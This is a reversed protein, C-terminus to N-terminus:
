SQRPTETSPLFQRWNARFRRMDRRARLHAIWRSSTWSTADLDLFWIREPTVLINQAKTDGHRFGAKGLLRLWEEMVPALRKAWAPDRKMLHSFKEGDVRPFLLVGSGDSYSARAIPGPTPFGLHNLTLGMVWSRRGSDLGTGRKIRAHLSTDHYHKIIWGGCEHVSIRSGKKILPWACPDRLIRQIENERDAFARDLLLSENAGKVERIASCSRLWKRNAKRIRRKLAKDKVRHLRLKQLGSLKFFVQIRTRLLDALGLPAQACLLGLNRIVIRNRRWRGSPLRAIAGSDVVQIGDGSYVFNGLHLDKQYFGAQYIREIQLLLDDIVADGGSCIVDGVESADELWEACLVTVGEGEHIGLPEPLAVDAGRLAEMNRRELRALQEHDPGFFVKAFVQRGLFRARAALRKGPLLRLCQELQIEGDELELRVARWDALTAARLWEHTVAEV